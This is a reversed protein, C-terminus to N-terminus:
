GGKTGRGINRFGSDPWSPLRLAPREMATVRLPGVDITPFRDAVLPHVTNRGVLSAALALGGSLLLLGTAVTASPALIVVLACALLWGPVVVTRTIVIAM